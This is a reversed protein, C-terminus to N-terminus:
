RRTHTRRNPLCVVIGLSRELIKLQTSKTIIGTIAIAPVPIASAM